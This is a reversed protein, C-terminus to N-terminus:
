TEMIEFTNNQMNIMTMVSLLIIVGLILFTMCYGGCTTNTAEISFSPKISFGDFYRFLASLFNIVAKVVKYLCNGNQRLDVKKSYNM